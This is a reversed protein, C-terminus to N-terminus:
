FLTFFSTDGNTRQTVSQSPVIAGDASKTTTPPPTTELCIVFSKLQGSEEIPLESRMRRM